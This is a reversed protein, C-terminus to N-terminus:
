RDFDSRKRHIQCLGEIEGRWKQWLFVGGVTSSGNWQLVGGLIPYGFVILMLTTIPHKHLHRRLLVFLAVILFSKVFMPPLVAAPPMAFLVHNLLPTAAATLLGARWGHTLTAILTFLYLPLFMQGGHPILHTLQPLALGATAYAASWAYLRQENWGLTALAPYTTTADTTKMPITFQNIVLVTHATSREM